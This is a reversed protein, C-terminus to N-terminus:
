VESGKNDRNSFKKSNSKYGLHVLLGERVSRLLKNAYPKQAILVILSHCEAILEEYEREYQNQQKSDCPQNM